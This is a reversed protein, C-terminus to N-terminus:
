PRLGQGTISVVKGEAEDRGELRAAITASVKDAAAILAHDVHHAYRGTVSYVQHGLLGAITMESYGLEHAVTSFAHRLTHIMVRELGAKAIAKRILKVGVLHGNGRRAPFVYPSTDHSACAALLLKMAVRGVPRVQQGVKTDSLRLCQHHSDIETRKLGFIENRRCGTLALVRAAQVATPNAVEHELEDLAEGFRHYEDPNLFRDRGKTPEREVGKVPNSDRIQRKVAYSFISGLLDITRSAAFVGGTVRAKGRPKTKVVTATKGLRVDDMFREVDATTVERAHRDGLLPKIHRKIRGDDIDLTSKKKPKGRYRVRGARADRMYDDCLQTITLATKAQQRKQKKTLQPDEGGEVRDALNVAKRRAQELTLRGYQGITYRKKKGSEPSRYQYFFTKVGSPKLRVGLGRPDDHWLRIDLKEDPKISDILRKTLRAM